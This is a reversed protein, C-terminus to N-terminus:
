CTKNTEKINVSRELWKGGNLNRYNPPTFSLWWIDVLFVIIMRNQFNSTLSDYDFAFIRKNLLPKIYYCFATSSFKPVIKRNGNILWLLYTYRADNDLSKTVSFFFIQVAYSCNRKKNRKENRTQTRHSFLSHIQCDYVASRQRESEIDQCCCEIVAVPYEGFVWFVDSVIELLRKRLPKRPFSANSVFVPANADGCVVYLLIYLQHSESLLNIPFEYSGACFILEHYKRRLIAM